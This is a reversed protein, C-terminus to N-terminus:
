LKIPAGQIPTTPPHSRRAHGHCHISPSCQNPPIVFDQASAPEIPGPNAKAIRNAGATVVTTWESENGAVDSSMDPVGDSWETGTTMLYDEQTMVEHVQHAENGGAVGSEVAQALELQANISLPLFEESYKDSNGKTQDKM